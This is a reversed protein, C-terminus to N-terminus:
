AFRMNAWHAPMVQASKIVNKIKICNREMNKNDDGFRRIFIVFLHLNSACMQKVKLERLM